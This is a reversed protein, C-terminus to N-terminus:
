SAESFPVPCGGSGEGAVCGTLVLAASVAAAGIVSRRTIKRPFSM